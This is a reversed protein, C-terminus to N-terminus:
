ISKELIVKKNKMKKTLFSLFYTTDEKRFVFLAGLTIIFTIISISIILLVKLWGNINFNNFQQQFIFYITIMIIIILSAFIAVFLNNNRIKDNKKKQIFQKVYRKSLFYNTISGSTWGFIISIFLSNELFAHGVSFCLILAMIVTSFLTIITKISSIKLILKFKGFVPLLHDYTATISDIFLPFCLGIILVMNIPQNSILLTSSIGITSIYTILTYFTIFIALLQFQNFIKSKIKKNKTVEEAVSPIAADMISHIIEYCSLGLLLYISYSGSAGFNDFHGGHMPEIHPHNQEISAYIIFIIAALDTGFQKLYQAVISQINEKSIKYSTVKEKKYWPFMKRKVPELILLIFFNKIGLLGTIIINMILFNINIIGNQQLIFLTIIIINFLITFFLDVFSSIYSKKSIYLLLISIPVVFYITITEICNSLIFLTSEYWPIYLGSDPIAINGGSFFFPFSFSLVIILFTYIAGFIYYQIKINSICSCSKNFHKKHISDYLSFISVSKIGGHSNAIYPLIGVVIALLGIAGLGYINETLYMRVFSFVIVTIALTVSACSNLITTRSLSNKIIKKKNM